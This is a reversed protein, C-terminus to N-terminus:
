LFIKSFYNTIYMTIHNKSMLIPLATSPKGIIVIIGSYHHIKLCYKLINTVDIIDYSYM